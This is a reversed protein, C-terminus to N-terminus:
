NNINNEGEFSLELEERVHLPLDQEDILDVQCIDDIVQSPLYEVVIFCCM